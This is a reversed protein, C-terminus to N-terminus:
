KGGVSKSITAATRNKTSEATRPWCTRSSTAIRLCRGILSFLDILTWSLLWDFDIRVPAKPEELRRVRAAEDANPSVSSAAPRRDGDANDRSRM